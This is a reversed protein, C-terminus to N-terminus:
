SSAKLYFPVLITLVLLVLDFVRAKVRKQFTSFALFGRLAYKGALIM